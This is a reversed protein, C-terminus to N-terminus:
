DGGHPRKSKEAKRLRPDPEHVTGCSPCRKDEGEPIIKSYCGEAGTLSYYEQRSGAWGNNLVDVAIEARWIDKTINWFTVIRMDEFAIGGSGIRWAPEKCVISHDCLEAFKRYQCAIFRGLEKKTWRIKGGCYDHLPVSVLWRRHLYGPWVLEFRVSEQFLEKSDFAMENPDALKSRGEVLQSLPIGWQYREGEWEWFGVTSGPGRPPAMGRNEIPVDEAFAVHLPFPVTRQTITTKLVDHLYAVMQSKEEELFATREEHYQSSDASTLDSDAGPSYGATSENDSSTRIRQTTVKAKTRAQSKRPM